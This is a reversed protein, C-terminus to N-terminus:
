TFITREPSALPRRSSTSVRSDSYRVLAFATREPTIDAKIYGAMRSTTAMIDIAAMSPKTTGFNSVSNLSMPSANGVSVRATMEAPSRTVFYPQSISASAISPKKRKRTQNLLGSPRALKSWRSNFRGINPCITNLYSTAFNARVTPVRNPLPTDRNCAM